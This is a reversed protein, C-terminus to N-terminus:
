PPHVMLQVCHPLMTSLRFSFLAYIGDNRRVRTPPEVKGARINRQDQSSLAFHYRRSSQCILHPAFHAIIVGACFAALWGLPKGVCGANVRATHM